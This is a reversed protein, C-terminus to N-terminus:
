LVSIDKGHPVHLNVNFRTINQTSVISHKYKDVHLTRNTQTVDIKGNLSKTIRYRIVGSAIKKRALILFPIYVRVTMEVVLVNRENEYEKYPYAITNTQTGDKSEFENYHM